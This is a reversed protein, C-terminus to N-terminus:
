NVSNVLLDLRTSTFQKDLPMMSLDDLYWGDYQGGWGWVYHFYTAGANLWMEYPATEVRKYILENPNIDSYGLCYLYFVRKDNTYRYGDCVWEHGFENGPVNGRQIVPKKNRLFNYVVNSNHTAVSCNYGYERLVDAASYIDGSGDDSIGLKNRLDILFDCTATNMYSDSMADWNITTPFRFYKMLQGTAVPTCGGEFEADFDFYQAWRTKLYAGYIEFDSDDYEAVMATHEWSYPTGGFLDDNAGEAQGCFIRYIDPPLINQCETLKHLTGDTEETVEFLLNEYLTQYEEETPGNGNSRTFIFNSSEEYERWQLEILPNTVSDNKCQEIRDLYEHVIVDEGFPEHDTKYNGHDIMALIPYYKKSASVFIYGDTFNVAYILSEGNENKIPIIEKIDQNGYSRTSKNRRKFLNAVIEADNESLDVTEKTLRKLKKVGEKLPESQSIEIPFDNSCSTLSFISAALVLWKTKKNM